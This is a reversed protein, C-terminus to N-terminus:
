ARSRRYRGMPRAFRVIAAGRHRLKTLAANSVCKQRSYIKSRPATELEFRLTKRFYSEYNFSEPMFLELPCKWALSKRPRVNLDFAIDDLDEALAGVPRASPCTSASYDTPTRTSAASSRVQFRVVTHLLGCKQLPVQM